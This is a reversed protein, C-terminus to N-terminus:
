RLLSDMLSNGNLMSTTVVIIRTKTLSELLQFAATEAYTVGGIFFVLITKLPTQPGVQGSMSAGPYVKGIDTLPIKKNIIMSILQCVAPIYAGSFVYSM